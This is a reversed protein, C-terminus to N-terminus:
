KILFHILVVIGLTLLVAVCQVLADFWIGYKLEFEALTLDKWSRREDNLHAKKKGQRM